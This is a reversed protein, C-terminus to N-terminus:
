KASNRHSSVPAMATDAATATARRLCLPCRKESPLEAMVQVATNRTMSTKRSSLTPARDTVWTRSLMDEVTKPPHINSTQEEWLCKYLRVHQRLVLVRACSKFQQCATCLFHM